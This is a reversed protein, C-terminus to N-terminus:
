TYNHLYYPQQAHETQDSICNKLASIEYQQMQKQPKHSPSYGYVCSLMWIEDASGRGNEKHM